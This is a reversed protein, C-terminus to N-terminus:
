LDGCKKMIKSSGKHKHLNFDVCTHHRMISLAMKKGGAALCDPTISSGLQMIQSEFVVRLKFENGVQERVSFVSM